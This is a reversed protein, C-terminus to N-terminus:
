SLPSTILKHFASSNRVRAEIEVVYCEANFKAMKLKVADKATTVLAHANAKVAAKEIKEVDNSRYFHHDPFAVSGAIEYGALDLTRYFNSPNGLACFTLVRKPMEAPLPKNGLYDSLKTILQIGSSCTFVPRDPAAAVIRRRIVEVSDVLNLRTIVVADARRLSSVPERLRGVPLMKGESFPDTADVCVIDLDRAVQRHQFGDDLVFTTIGFKQKAWLGAEYRRADAIIVARSQLRRALEAPEDGAIAPDDEIFNGDAVIVRSGANQRGYGRTLICVKEGSEALMAAIKAVLPTKGTGGATINGVSITRVGLPRSRLIGRDYM